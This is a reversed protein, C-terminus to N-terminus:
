VPVKFSMKTATSWRLPTPVRADIENEQFYQRATEAATVRATDEDPATITTLYPTPGLVRVIWEDPEDSRTLTIWYDASLKASQTQSPQNAM